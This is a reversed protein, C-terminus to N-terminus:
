RDSTAEEGKDPLRFRVVSGRPHNGEFEVEGGLQDAGWKMLWLGVGSAHELSTEREAAVPALEADPIGPGDDEVAIEVAYDDSGDPAITVEVDADDAESHIVANGIAEELVATLLSQNSGIRLTGDFREFSIEASPFEAGQQEVVNAAVEAVDVPQIQGPNLVQKELRRIKNATTVLGEGASRIKRAFRAPDVEEAEIMAAYGMVANLDNRLNHRLLRTLVNRYQRRIKLESPDRPLGVIEWHEEFDAQRWSEAIQGNEVRFFENAVWEVERDDSPIRQPEAHKGSASFRVAVTNGEAIITEITYETDPYANLFGFEGEICEERGRPTATHGSFHRVIDTAFVSALGGRDQDNLHQFYQRVVAKPNTPNAPM